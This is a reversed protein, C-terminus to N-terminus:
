GAARRQGTPAAAEATSKKSKAPAPAGFATERISTMLLENILPLDWGPIKMEASALAVQASLPKSADVTDDLEEQSPGNIGICFVFNLESGATPELESLAHSVFLTKASDLELVGLASMAEGFNRGGVVGVLEHTCGKASSATAPLLAIDLGCLTGLKKIATIAAPVITEIKMSPGTASEDSADAYGELIEDATLESEIDFFQTANPFYEHVRVTGFDYWNHAERLYQHLRLNTSADYLAPGTGNSVKWPSLAARLGMELRKAEAEITFELARSQEVDIDLASFAASSFESALNETFGIQFRDGSAHMLIYVFSSSM